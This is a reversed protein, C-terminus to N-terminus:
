LIKFDVPVVVSAEVSHGSRSAPIFRWQKIADLAAQDLIAYGSSRSIDVKAAKGSASVLVNVLVKGQVNNHKASAPYAPAPNNLYDANFVPESEAAKTATANPDQRGSTEQKSASKDSKELASETKNTINKVGNKDDIINTNKQKSITLSKSSSSPAVFSVNITQQNMVIPSSPLFALGAAMGHVALAASAALFHLNSLKFASINM